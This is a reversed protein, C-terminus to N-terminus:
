LKGPKDTNIKPNGELLWRDADAVTAFVAVPIGRNVAVTEAFKMLDGDANVDVYAIAQFTGSAKSSGQAAIQFVDMAGIRPGELREEVLVRFCNRATCEERIEQLYRQVNERSNSGTVIAHFYSPKHHITLKYTMQEPLSFRDSWAQL